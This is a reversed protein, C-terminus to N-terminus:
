KKGIRECTISLRRAIHIVVGPGQSFWFWRGFSIIRPRGRLAIM